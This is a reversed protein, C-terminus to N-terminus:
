GALEGEFASPARRVMLLPEVAIELIFDGLDGFLLSTDIGQLRLEHSLSSGFRGYCRRCRLVYNRRPRVVDDSRPYGNLLEQVRCALRRRGLRDHQNTPFTPRSFFFQERSRQSSCCGM